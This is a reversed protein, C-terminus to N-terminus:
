DKVLPHERADSIVLPKGSTVAHQCFSHSLPTQRQSRWPEPLSGACSKFFQRQADVLSVLAVPVRLAKAALRTLRDFAEEPPTDMVGARRLAALRGADSLTRDATADDM